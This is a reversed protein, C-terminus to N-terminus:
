FGEDQQKLRKIEAAADNGEFLEFARVLAKARQERREAPSRIAESDPSEDAPDLGRAADDPLVRPTIRM